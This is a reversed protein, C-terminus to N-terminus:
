LSTALSLPREPSVVKYWLGPTGSSSPREFLSCHSPCLTRAHTSGVGTPPLASTEHQGQMFTSFNSLAVKLVSMIIILLLRPQVAFAKLHSNISSASSFPSSLCSLFSGLPQNRYNLCSTIILLLLISLPLFFQSVDQLFASLVQSHRHINQNYFQWSISSKNKQKIGSSM